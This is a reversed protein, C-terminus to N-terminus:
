LETPSVPRLRPDDPPEDLALRGETTWARRFVVIALWVAVVCVVASMSILAWHPLGILIAGAWVLALSPLAFLQVLLFTAAIATIVRSVSIRGGGARAPAQAAFGGIAVM